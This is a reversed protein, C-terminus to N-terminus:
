GSYSMPISILGEGYIYFPFKLFLVVRINHLNDKFVFCFFIYRIEELLRWSEILRQEKNLAVGRPLM